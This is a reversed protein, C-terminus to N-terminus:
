KNMVRVQGCAVPLTPMYVGNVMMGHLVITRNQLPLLDKSIKFTREYTVNGAATATPFPMLPLLIAGYFPAGEAVSILGDGNTDASPPPCVSNKKTDAFGHIHQPHVELPTMGSAEIRVTLMDGVLTLNAKGTAGSGNLSSLDAVYDQKLNLADSEVAAAAVQDPKVDNRECSTAVCLLAAAAVFGQLKKFYVKM